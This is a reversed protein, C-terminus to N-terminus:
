MLVPFVILASQFGDALINRLVDIIMLRSFSNAEVTAGQMRISENPRDGRV